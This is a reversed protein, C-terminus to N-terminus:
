KNDKNLTLVKVMKDRNIKENIIMKERVMELKIKCNVISNEIKNIKRIADQYEPYKSEHNKFKSSYDKKLEVIEKLTDNISDSTYDINCISKRIENDYDYAYYQKYRREDVSLENRLRKVEGKTIATQRAIGPFTGKLPSLMLLGLYKFSNKLLDGMGNVSYEVLERSDINGVVNSINKSINDQEQLFNSFSDNNLSIDFLKDKMKDFDVNRVKLENVKENKKEEYLIAEDHLKDIKLYLYKYEELLKYDKVVSAIRNTELKNKLSVIKEVLTDDDIELLYEFDVNDKLYDYKEKLSNIKSLLKKIEKVNQVCKEYYEDDNLLEKLVFLDSQLIEYENINKVLRKKIINIIDKELKEIELVDKTDTPINNNKLLMIKSKLSTDISKIKNVKMKRQKTDQNRLNVDKVISFFELEKNSFDKNNENNKDVVVEKEKVVKKDINSKNEKKIKNIFSNEIMAIPTLFVRRIFSNKYSPEDVLNMNKRRRFLLIRKLRESFKGKNGTTM